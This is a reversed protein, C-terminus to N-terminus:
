ANRDVKDCSPSLCIGACTIAKWYRIRQHLHSHFVHPLLKDPGAPALLARSRKFRLSQGRHPHAAAVTTIFLQPSNTRERDLSCRSFERECPRLPSEGQAERVTHAYATEFTPRLNSVRPWGKLTREPQLALVAGRGGERNGHM